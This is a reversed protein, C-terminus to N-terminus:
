IVLENLFKYCKDVDYVEIHELGIRKLKNFLFEYEDTYASVSYAYKKCYEQISPNDIKKIHYVMRQFTTLPKKVNVINLYKIGNNNHEYTKEIFLVELGYQKFFDIIYQKKNIM